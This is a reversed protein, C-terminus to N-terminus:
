STPSRRAARGRGVARTSATPSCRATPTGCSASSRAPPSTATSARSAPRASRATSRAAPRRRSACRAATTRPSTSRRSRMAAAPTSCGSARATPARDHRPHVTRRARDDSRARASACRGERPRDDGRRRRRLAPPGLAVGAARSVAERRARRLLAALAAPDLDLLNIMPSAARVAGHRAARTLPQLSSLAPFFYAIETARPRRARRLRARRQRRDVARFRRPDHGAGGEESRHRGDARPEERDRERRRAGPDDGPRVDHFRGPRPLVAAGPAGRLLGRRGDRSLWTMRAAVIKLGAKEFRAYIEGIVNKAVADPKIISLTREVAM